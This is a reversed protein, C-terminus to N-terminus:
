LSFFVCLVNGNRLLSLLSHRLRAAKELKSGSKAQLPIHPNEINVAQRLSAKVINRLEKRPRSPVEGTTRGEVLWPQQVETQSCLVWTM